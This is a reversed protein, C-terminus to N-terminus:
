KTPRSHVRFRPSVYKTLAASLLRSADGEWLYTLASLLEATALGSEQDRDSSAFLEKIQTKFDDGFYDSKVDAPLEEIAKDVKGCIDAAM